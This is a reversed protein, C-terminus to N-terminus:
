VIRTASTSDIEGGGARARGEGTGEEEEWMQNWESNPSEHCEKVDSCGSGVFCLLM